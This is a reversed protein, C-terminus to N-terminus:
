RRAWTMRRSWGLLIRYLTSNIFSRMICDEGAEHRRCFGISFCYKSTMVTGWAQWIKQYTNEYGDNQYTSSRVASQKLYM